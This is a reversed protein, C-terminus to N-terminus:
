AAQIRIVGDGSGITYVVRYTTGAVLSADSFSLYGSADSTLGTKRLVHSGDTLSYVNAEISGTSAYITRTNNSLPEPTTITGPATVVGASTTVSIATAIANIITDSAEVVTGVSPSVSISSAIANVLTSNDGETVTGLATSVNIAASIGSVNTDTAVSGASTTVNIAAAIGTVTTGGAVPLEARLDDAVAAAEADTLEGEWYAIDLLDWDMTDPAQISITSVTFNGMTAANTIFDPDNTSRSAQDKYVEVYDSSTSDRNVRFVFVLTHTTATTQAGTTTVVGSIGIRARTNSGNKTFNIEGASATSGASMIQNFGAANGFTNIQYRLAVSFGGGPTSSGTATVSYDPVTLSQDVGAPLNWSDESGVTSLSPSGTGSFAVSREKDTIASDGSEAYVHTILTAM